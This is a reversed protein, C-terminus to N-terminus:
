RRRRGQARWGFAHLLAGLMSRAAIGATPVEALGKGTTFSSLTLSESPYVFVRLEVREVATMDVAGPTGFM